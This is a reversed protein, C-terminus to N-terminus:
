EDLVDKTYERILMLRSVQVGLATEDVPVEEGRSLADWADAVKASLPRVYADCQGLLLSTAGAVPPPVYVMGAVRFAAAITALIEPGYTAGDVVSSNPLKFKKTGRIQEVTLVGYMIEAPELEPIVRFDVPRGNFAQCCWLFVHYEQWFAETTFLTRLAGIIDRVVAPPNGIAEWLAEPEWELWDWGHDAHLQKLLALPWAKQRMSYSVDVTAPAKPPAKAPKKKPAEAAVKGGVHAEGGLLGKEKGQGVPEQELSHPGIAKEVTADKGDPAQPVPAPMGGPKPRFKRLFLGKPTTGAPPEEAAQAQGKRLLTKLRDTAPM